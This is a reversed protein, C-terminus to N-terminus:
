KLACTIDLWKTRYMAPFSIWGTKVLAYGRIKFKLTKTQPRVLVTQIMIQDGLLPKDEAQFCWECRSAGVGIAQIAPTIVSFSLRGILKLDTSLNLKVDGGILDIADLVEKLEDPVQVNGEVGLDVVSKFSAGFRKCFRSHPLMEITYVEDENEFKTEYGLVKVEASGERRIAGISHFLLWIDYADYVVIDDPLSERKLKYLERLNKAIPRDGLRIKLGKVSILRDEKEDTGFDVEYPSLFLNGFPSPALDFEQASLKTSEVM